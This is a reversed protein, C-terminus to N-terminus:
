QRYPHPRCIHLTRVTTVMKTALLALLRKRPLLSSRARQPPVTIQWQLFNRTRVFSPYNTFNPASFRSSWIQLVRQHFDSIISCACLVVFCHKITKRQVSRDQTVRVILLARHSEFFRCVAFHSSSFPSHKDVLQSIDSKRFRLRHSSYLGVPPQRLFVHPVLSFLSPLEAVSWVSFVQSVLFAVVRVIIVVSPFLLFLPIVFLVLPFSLLFAM